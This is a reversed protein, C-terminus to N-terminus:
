RADLVLVGILVTLYVLSYGFARRAWGAEVVPRLGVAAVYLFGAGLVTATALYFPGALGLPLAALSTLVLLVTYAFLHRRAVLDGAVLPLVRLGGRQYDDKLYLSIAIFHPLQWVFLIGFLVWGTAALSGTLATWGMLPPIAGPVAGVILAWWSVRKMPTYILLYSFLAAAGLAVTLANTTWILLALALTGLGVGFALAAGPTFSLAAPSSRRFLHTASFSGNTRTSVSSSNIGSNM